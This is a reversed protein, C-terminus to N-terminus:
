GCNYIIKPFSKAYNFIVSSSRDTSGDDIVYIDEFRVSQNILSDLCLPLYSDYNYNTVVCVRRM